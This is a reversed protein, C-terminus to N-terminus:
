NIASYTCITTLLILNLESEFYYQPLGFHQLASTSTTQQKKSNRLLETILNM